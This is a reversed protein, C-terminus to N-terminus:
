QEERLLHRYNRPVLATYDPHRRIYGAVYHCSPIVALERARADDLAAQVLRGAIGRGELAPPVETHTFVIAEGSRQYEAVAKQHDTHAEWRQMEENNVIRLDPTARETM